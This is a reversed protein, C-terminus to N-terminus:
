AIVSRKPRAQGRSRNGNMAKDLPSRPELAAVQGPLGETLKQAIGYRTARQEQQSRIFEMRAIQDAHPHPEGDREAVAADYEAQANLLARQALALADEAAEVAVKADAAKAEAESIAEAM